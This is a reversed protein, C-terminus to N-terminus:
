IIFIIYHLFKKLLQNSKKNKMQDDLDVKELFDGRIWQQIQEMLYM